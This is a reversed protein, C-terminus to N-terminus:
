PAPRTLLDREARLEGLRAATEGQEARLDELHEEGAAIEMEVQELRSLRRPLHAVLVAVLALLALVSLVTM